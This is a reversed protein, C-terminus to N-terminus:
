QCSVHRYDTRCGGEEESREPKLQTNRVHFMSGHHAWALPIWTCTTWVYEELLGVTQSDATYAGPWRFTQKQMTNCSSSDAAAPAVSESGCAEDESRYRGAGRERVDKRVAPNLMTLWLHAFVLSTSRSSGARTLRGTTLDLRMDLGGRWITCTM